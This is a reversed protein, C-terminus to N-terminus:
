GRDRGRVLHADVVTLLQRAEEPGVGLLELLALVVADPDIEAGVSHRLLDLVHAVRGVSVGGVEWWVGWLM